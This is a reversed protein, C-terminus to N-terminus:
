KEEKYDDNRKVFLLCGATVLSGILLALLYLLANNSLALYIPLPAYVYTTTLSFVYALAGGVTSGAMLCPIIRLPDNGAIPIAFETISCVGGVLLGLLNNREFKSFNNKKLLMAIALGFTPTACAITAAVWQTTVGQLAFATSIAAATKNLPGGMDFASMLGTIAGLLIGGGTGLSNLANTLVNTLTTIPTGIVYVLFLGTIITSLLPIILVPLLSKIMSPLKIKKLFRVLYGAFIGGTLAGLYGAGMENAIYGAVFGSVLAPRDSISYAAFGGLVPLMFNFARQGIWFLTNVFDSYPATAYIDVGRAFLGLGTLIGGGVIFPLAYSTGTNLAEKIENLIKKM